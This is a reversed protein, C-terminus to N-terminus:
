KRRRTLSAHLSDTGAGLAFPSPAWPASSRRRADVERRRAPVRRYLAQQARHAGRSHREIPNRRPEVQLLMASRPCTTSGMRDHPSHRPLTSTPVEGRRRRHEGRTAPARPVQRPLPTVRQRRPNEEPRASRAGSGARRASAFPGRMCPPLARRVGRLEAGSRRGAGPRRDDRAPARVM